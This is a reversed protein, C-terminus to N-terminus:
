AFARQVQGLLIRGAGVVYYPIIDTSGAATSLTFSGGGAKEFDTGLSLTRSGSGDQKLFILGSTGSVETTPNNLTINGTLTLHFHTSTTFNLTQGGTATANTFIVSNAHTIGTIAGTMAGGAKPLAAGATTATAAIYSNTNALAAKSRVDAETYSSSNLKTAIFTNTNALSARETAATAAVYSNTNALNSAQKAEQTDLATQVGAIYSNTNALQATNSYRSEINGKGILSITNAEFDYTATVKGGAAGANSFKLMDYRNSDTLGLYGTGGYFQMAQRASYDLFISTGGTADPNDVTMAVYTNPHSANTSQTRVSIAFADYLAGANNRGQWMVKGLWDNNTPSASDRVMRIFPVNGSGDDTNILNLLPDGGAESLKIDVNGSFIGGATNAKTAIYSNTNALAAREVAITQKLALNTTNAYRTDLLQGKYMVNAGDFHVNAGTFHVNSTLTQRSDDSASGWLLYGNAAPIVLDRNSAGIQEAHTAAKLKIGHANNTECFFKIYAPSGTNTYLDIVGGQVQHGAGTFNVNSSVLLSGGLINTNTSVVNAFTGVINTNANISVPGAVRQRITNTQLAVNASITNAYLSSENVAFQNIRGYSENAGTLWTGFTDSLAITSLKAM